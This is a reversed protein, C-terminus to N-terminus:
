TRHAKCKGWKRVASDFNHELELTRIHEMAATFLRQDYADDVQEVM